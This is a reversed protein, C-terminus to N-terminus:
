EVMEAEEHGKALKYTTSSTKVTGSKVVFAKERRKLTHQKLL